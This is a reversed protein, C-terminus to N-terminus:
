HDHSHDSDDDHSHTDGQQATTDEAAGDEHQHDSDDDHSHETSNAHSDAGSGIRVPESDDTSQQAAPTDHTHDGDEGHSHDGNEAGCGAILLGTLLAFLTIYYKM